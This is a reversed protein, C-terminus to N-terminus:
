RLAIFASPLKAHDTGAGPILAVLRRQLSYPVVPNIFLGASTYAILGAFDTSNSEPTLTSRPTSARM